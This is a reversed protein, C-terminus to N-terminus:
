DGRNNSTVIAVLFGDYGKSGVTQLATADVRPERSVVDYLLRTGTVNPDSSEDDVVLGKRVVNDVVIVSGPMALRLSWEFYDANNVKDADIFVFDFPGVGEVALRPLTEIAPGVRVDVVKALGARALNVRAVEAHRPDAELTIVRGGPPMGKALWITSYGGLTGIELISRASRLRVLLQLMRGQNPTVNIAPLGAAASEALASDLSSDSPLLTGCIYRDVDTWLHSTM